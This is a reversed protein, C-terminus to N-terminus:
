AAMISRQNYRLLKVSQIQLVTVKVLSLISERIITRVHRFMYSHNYFPTKIYIKINLIKYTLYFHMQQYFFILMIFICPIFNFFLTSVVSILPTSFLHVFSLILLFSIFRLTAVAANPLPIERSNRNNVFKKKKKKACFYLVPIQHYPVTSWASYVGGCGRKLRARAGWSDSHVFLKSM